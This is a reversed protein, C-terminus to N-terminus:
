RAAAFNSEFPPGLENGEMQYPKVGVFTPLVPQKM